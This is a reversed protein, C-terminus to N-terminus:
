DYKEWFERLAQQCGEPDVVYSLGHGAGPVTILRKPAQCAEYNEISMKVPVFRDDEGHVFLIPTKCAKMAEVTSYEDCNVQMKRRCLWNVLKARGPTYAVHLNDEAIHKWIAHPSTFGCDASIGHVSEPLGMGAAMLVTAAGMSIGSLYIPLGFNQADAWKAWAVCDHRELLGFGMYEGDSDNQGRQEVYLVNCNNEQWFPAIIGFDMAWSSRWGHFAIILRKPNECRRLHGVLKLGDFSHITVTECESEQLKQAAKKQLEAMDKLKPSGAILDTAWAASRPMKRDFAISTLLGTLSVSAASIGTALGAAIGVGRIINKKEM